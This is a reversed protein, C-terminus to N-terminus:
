LRECFADLSEIQAIMEEIYILTYDKQNNGQSLLPAERKASGPEVREM